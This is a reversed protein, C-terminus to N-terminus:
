YGDYVCVEVECLYINWIRKCRYKLVLAVLDVDDFYLVYDERAISFMLAYVSLDVCWCLACRLLFRVRSLFECHQDRGAHICLVM